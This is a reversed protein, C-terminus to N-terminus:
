LQSRLQSGLQSGLQSLIGWALICALPSDFWLVMPRREGLKAYMGTWAAECAERDCRETSRGTQLWSAVSEHLAAEQESTLQAIKKKTM